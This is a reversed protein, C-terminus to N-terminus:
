SLGHRRWAALLDEGVKAPADAVQLCPLPPVPAAPQREAQVPQVLGQGPAPQRRARQVLHHGAAPVEGVLRRRHQEDGADGGPECARHQPHQPGGVQEGGAEGTDAQM